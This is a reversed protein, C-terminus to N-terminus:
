TPPFLSFAQIYLANAPNENSAPVQTGTGTNESWHVRTSGM